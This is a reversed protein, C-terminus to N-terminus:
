RGPWRGRGSRDGRERLRERVYRAAQKAVNEIYAQRPELPIQFLREDDLYVVVRTYLGQVPQEQVRITFSGVGEPAEWATFFASFFDQGTPSQTENVVLDLDLGPGGATDELVGPRLRLSQLYRVTAQYGPVREPLTDADVPFTPSTVSEPPAPRVRATDPEEQADGRGTAAVAALAALGGGAVVRTM